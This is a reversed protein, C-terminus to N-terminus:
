EAPFRSLDAVGQTGTVRFADDLVIGGEPLLWNTETGLGGDAFELLGWFADQHTADAISRHYGRVRRVPSGSYWLMMDIDHIATLLVPHIRSYLSLLSKPRDRRAHMHVVKGLR